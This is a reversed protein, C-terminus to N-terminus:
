LIICIKSLILHLSRYLKTYNLNSNNRDFNETGRLDYSQTNTDLLKKVSSYITARIDESHDPFTDLIHSLGDICGSVINKDSKKEPMESQRRLQRVMIEILEAQTSILFPYKKM